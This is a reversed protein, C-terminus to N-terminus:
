LEASSLEARGYPDAHDHVTDRYVDPNVFPVYDGTIMDEIWLLHLNELAKAFRLAEHPLGYPQGLTEKAATVCEVLHRFGYETLVGRNSLPVAFLQECDKASANACTRKQGFCRLDLM